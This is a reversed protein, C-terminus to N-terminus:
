LSESIDMLHYNRWGVHKRMFDNALTGNGAGIELVDPRMLGMQFCFQHLAEGYPMCSMYKDGGRFINSLTIEEHNFLRDADITRTYFQTGDTQVVRESKNQM